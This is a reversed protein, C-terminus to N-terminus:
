ELFFTLDKKLIVIFLIVMLILLGNLLFFELIMEDYINFYLVVKGDEGGFLVAWWVFLTLFASSMIGYVGLIIEKITVM